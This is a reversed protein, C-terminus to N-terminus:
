SYGCRPPSVSNSSRPFTLNFIFNTKSSSVRAVSDTRPKQTGQTEWYVVTGDQTAHTNLVVLITAIPFDYLFQLATADRTCKVADSPPQNILPVRLVHIQATSNLMLGVSCAPFLNVMSSLDGYWEKFTKALDSGFRGFDAANPMDIILLPPDYRYIVKHPSPFRDLLLKYQSRM